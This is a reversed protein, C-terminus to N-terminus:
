EATLARNNYHDWDDGKNTKDEQIYGFQIEAQRISDM